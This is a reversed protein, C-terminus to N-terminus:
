QDVVLNSKVYEGAIFRANSVQPYLVYKANIDQPTYGFIHEAFKDAVQYDDKPKKAEGILRTYEKVRAIFHKSYYNRAEKGSFFKEDELKKIVKKAYGDLINSHEVIFFHNLSYMVDFHLLFHVEFDFRATDDRKFHKRPDDLYKQFLDNLIDSRAFVNVDMIREDTAVQLFVEVLANELAESDSGYATPVKRFKHLGFM